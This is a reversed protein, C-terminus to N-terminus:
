GRPYNVMMWRRPHNVRLRGDCIIWWCDDMMSLEGEIRWWNDLMSLEGGIMWQPWNVWLIGDHLIWRLRGNQIIWGWNDMTSSDITWRPVNVRLRGEHIIWGWYEMIWLAGEIMWLPHNVRLREYIVRLWGDHIIWGWDDMTSLEGAIGWDDIVSREGENMWWDDMMYSEGEISWNKSSVGEIMWRPCNAKLQEDHVICGWHVRLRGNQIIWGWNDM